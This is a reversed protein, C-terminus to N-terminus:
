KKTAGWIHIYWNNKYQINIDWDSISSKILAIDFYFLNVVWGIYGEQYVTLTDMQEDLYSHVANWSAMGPQPKNPMFPCFTSPFIRPGAGDWQTMTAKRLGEDTGTFLEVIFIM